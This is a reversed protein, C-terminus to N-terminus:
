SGSSLAARAASSLRKGDARGAAREMLIPMIKGMEKPSTVGTEAVVERALEAIEDDSLEEPLYHKLIALQAEEREALDERGGARFQDISEVMRKAQRQLLAVGEAEDLEARKEIEANKLAALLYRLTDRTVTDGSRMANKLDTELQQRLSETM